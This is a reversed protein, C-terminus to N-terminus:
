NIIQKAVALLNSYQTGCSKPNIFKTDIKPANTKYTSILFSYIAQAPIENLKKYVWRTLSDVFAQQNTSLKGPIESQELLLTERILNSPDPVLEPVDFIDATIPFDSKIIETLTDKNNMAICAAIAINQNESLVNNCRVAVYSALGGLLARIANMIHMIPELPDKNTTAKPAEETAKEGKKTPAPKEEKVNTEIWKTSIKVLYAGTICCEERNNSKALYQMLLNIFVPDLAHRSLSKDLGQAYTDTEMDAALIYAAIRPVRRVIDSYLMDRANQMIILKEQPTRTIPTGISKLYSDVSHLCIMDSDTIRNPIM